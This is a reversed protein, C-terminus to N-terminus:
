HVEGILGVLEFENAQQTIRALNLQATEHNHQFVIIFKLYSDRQFISAITM